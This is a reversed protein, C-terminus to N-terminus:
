WKAFAKNFIDDVLLTNITSISEEEISTLDIDVSHEAINQFDTEWSDDEVLNNKYNVKVNMTIRRIDSSEDGTPAQVTYYYQIIKGSFNVDAKSEDEVMVLNTERLMKDRLADTFLDGMTAIGNGSVNDFYKISFTKINPDINAGSFSYQVSCATLSLLTIIIIAFSTKM